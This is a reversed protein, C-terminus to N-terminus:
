VRSKAAPNAAPSAAALECASVSPCLLPCSSGDTLNLVIIEVTRDGRLIVQIPTDGVLFSRRYEEPAGVDAPRSFPITARSLDTAEDDRGEHDTM